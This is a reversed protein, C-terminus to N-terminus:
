VNQYAGEGVAVGSESLVMEVVRDLEKDGLRYEKQFMKLRAQIEPPFSSTQVLPINSYLQDATNDVPAALADNLTDYVDAISDISDDYEMHPGSYDDYIDAQEDGGGELAGSKLLVMEVVRDLEDDGLQHEKQFVKLRAQIEPPLNSTQLLIPNTISPELPANLMENLTDYEDMLSDEEEDSNDLEKHPDNFYEEYDLQTHPTVYEEHIEEYQPLM